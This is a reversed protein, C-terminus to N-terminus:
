TQWLEALLNPRTIQVLRDWSPPLVAVGGKLITVTKFGAIDSNVASIQIGEPNEGSGSSLDEVRVGWHSDKAMAAEAPEDEVTAALQEDKAPESIEPESNTTVRLRQRRREFPEYIQAPYNM